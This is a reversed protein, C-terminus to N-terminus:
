RYTSFRRRTKKKGKVVGNKNINSNSPAGTSANQERNNSSAGPSASQERDRSEPKYYTIKVPAEAADDKKADPPTYPNSSRKTIEALEGLTPLGLKVRVVDKKMLEGQFMSFSNSSIWYMFVGAPFHYTMFPMAVAMGRFVNLMM